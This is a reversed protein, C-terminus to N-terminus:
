QKLIEMSKQAIQGWTRDENWSKNRAVEYLERVLIDEENEKPKIELEIEEYCKSCKFTYRM